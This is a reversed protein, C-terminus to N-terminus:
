LYTSASGTSFVPEANKSNMHLCELKNPICYFSLEHTCQDSQCASLALATVIRGLLVLLIIRVTDLELFVALPTTMMGQMLFGSLLDTIKALM